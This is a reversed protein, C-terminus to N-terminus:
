LSLALRKVNLLHTYSVNDTTSNGGFTGCGLTLSPTLGTSIGICGQAGPANVLIRSAPIALGFREVLGQNETHIIATHGRGENALIQQCLALGEAEGDVTFLSLVPALKERGYPGKVEDLAVPVVILRILGERQIGTSAAIAQASQGVMQQRLRGSEPDFIQATFRNTEDPSLVAAGHRELAKIFPQRLSTDVILHNESACIIGNDFSKSQIVALAVREPDADACVWAPANGSGVGIAPTGSSYAAKVMNPGGTALILSVDKHRMFMATKRRSTRGRIWQVLDVPADHQRLVAQIIEGAQNGVGLANRHCSLILANRGKLCILTKFTITSVPNTLPILGLVVGVPGAIETVKHKEDTRLLGSAPRGALMRYVELGAFGSKLVKDSVNGMGTEAVTTVALETAQEAIAEAVDRLLADVREEPWGEFARQAAVARAVMENTNADIEDAFLYGAMRDNQQRLKGSLNQGLAKSITLGIRPYHECLVEFDVKSFWRTAVDDHAYASASRSRGDLLSFEGLFMSPKLYGLVGNSGTEVNQLELRVEGEDILYCGDGPEGERVICANKPFQVSQLYNAVIDLEEAQLVNLFSM